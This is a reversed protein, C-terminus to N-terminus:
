TIITHILCFTPSNFNWVGRVVDYITKWPINGTDVSLLLVFLNFVSVNEGHGMIIKSDRPLM